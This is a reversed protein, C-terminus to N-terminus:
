GELVANVTVEVSDSLAKSIPCGDKAANAKENFTDLDAGPVKARVTITSSIVTWGSDTKDATVEVMVAVKDPVLKAQSLEHSVAMAYCAAHAAALLEEPSTMDESKATRAKWTIPQDTFIGSSSATVSGGGATLNGSWNAEAKRTQAM